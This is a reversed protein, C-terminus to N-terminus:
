VIGKEKFERIEERTYGASMLAEDTHEGLRPAPGPKIPEVDSFKIPFAVQPTTGGDPHPGEIFMKRYKVHPDQGVEDFQLVPSCCTEESSLLSTWEDRTKTKFIERLEKDMKDRDLDWGSKHLDVLDPRDTLNCFNRWFKEELTAIVFNKKDKTEYIMYGPFGGSLRLTGVDPSVGSSFFEGYLNQAVSMLGDIMAVDIYQGRGTNQRHYLASMIAFAAMLAGGAIDGVQIGMPLAQGGRHGTVSALGSHALFNLDHGPLNAYPGDQGWGTLSCYILKRNDRRLNQYSIGLREAVGPRFAEIIVDAAGALRRFIESGERSKLNLTMSRKNRNIMIFTSGHEGFKTRVHRAPDGDGPREIKLVDAGLDALMQTCFPGPLLWSLDLVKVGVLMQAM